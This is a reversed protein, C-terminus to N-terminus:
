GGTDLSMILGRYIAVYNGGGGRCMCLIYEGVNYMGRIYPIYIGACITVVGHMYMYILYVWIYAGRGEWFFVEGCHPDHQIYLISM